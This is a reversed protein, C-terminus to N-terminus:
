RGWEDVASDETSHDINTNRGLIFYLLLGVVNGIFAVFAWLLPSHPSNEDADVYVWMPVALMVALIGLLIITEAM